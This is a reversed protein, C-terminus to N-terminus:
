LYALCSFVTISQQLLFHAMKQVHYPDTINIYHKIILYSYQFFFNFDTFYLLGACDISNTESIKYVEEVSRSNDLAVQYSYCRFYTYNSAQSTKCAESCDM